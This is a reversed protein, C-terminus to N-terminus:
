PVHDSKSLYHDEGMVDHCVVTGGPRPSRARPGGRRAPRLSVVRGAPQRLMCYCLTDWAGGAWTITPHWCPYSVAVPLRVEVAEKEAIGHSGSERVERLADAHFFRPELRLSFGQWRVSAGQWVWRRRTGLGRESQRAENMEAVAGQLGEATVGRERLTSVLEGAHAAVRASPM